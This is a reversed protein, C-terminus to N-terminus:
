ATVEGHESDDLCRSAEVALTAPFDGVLLVHGQTAVKAEVPLTAAAHAAAAATEAWVHAALRGGRWGSQARGRSRIYHM